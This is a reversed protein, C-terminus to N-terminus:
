GAPKARERGWRREGTDGAVFSRVFSRVHIPRRAGRALLAAAGRRRPEPHFEIGLPQLSISAFFYFLRSLSTHLHGRRAFLFAATSHCPTASGIQLECGPSALGSPPFYEDAAARAAVLSVDSFPVPRRAEACARGLSVRASLGGGLRRRRRRRTLAAPTPYASVFLSPVILVSAGLPLDFASPSSLNKVKWHLSQKM